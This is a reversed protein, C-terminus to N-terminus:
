NAGCCRKYKRGSGCTCPENRGTKRSPFDGAMHSSSQVAHNAKTGNNIAVVFHPIAEPAMRSLKTEKQDYLLPSKQTMEYLALMMSVAKAAEPDDGELISQWSDPRLAMAQEFGEIWIEWFVDGNRADEDFVAEYTIVPPILSRAVRNYHEMVAQIATEAKEPTDFAKSNEAGWVVPLWESPPILEPCVILGAAFGDLETVLMGDLEYPLEALVQDLAEIQDDPHM